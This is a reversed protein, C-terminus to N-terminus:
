YFIKHSQEILTHKSTIEWFWKYDCLGAIITLASAIRIGHVGCTSFNFCPHANFLPQNYVVPESVLWLCTHKNNIM